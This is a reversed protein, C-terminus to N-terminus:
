FLQSLIHLTGIGMILTITIALGALLIGILYILGDRDTLGLALVTCAFAPVINGIFPIPLIMLLALMLFLCGAFRRSLPGTLQPLRPRALRFMWGLYRDSINYAKALSPRSIEKQGLWSPIWLHTRGVILQVAFICIVLGSTMPVGPPMPIIMPLAFILISLGFSRVGLAGMIQSVNLQEDQIGDLSIQLLDIIDESQDEPTEKGSM